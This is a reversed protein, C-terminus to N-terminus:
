RVEMEADIGIALNALERGLYALLDDLTVMGALRDDRDVIPLRRVGCERMYKTATFVGTNDPIALVHHTMVEQAPAQPSVGRAGLALALDRDIVIGVPRREEEIVVAGVNHEQMLRAVAALSDGPRATVVEKTFVDSLKM